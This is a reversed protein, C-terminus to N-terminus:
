AGTASGGPRADALVRRVMRLVPEGVGKPALADAHYVRPDIEPRFEEPRLRLMLPTRPAAARVGKVAKRASIHPLDLDLLILRFQVIALLKLAADLTAEHWLWVNAKLVDAIVSQVFGAETLDHEVLLIAPVRLSGPAPEEAAHWM